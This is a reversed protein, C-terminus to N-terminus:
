SKSFSKIMSKIGDQYSTTQFNPFHNKFKDFNMEYPNEFQFLMEEVEGITPIFFSLIKRMVKPLYSIKFNTGLVSNMLDNIEDFTIPKGVPLHWVQGYTSDDLALAVM